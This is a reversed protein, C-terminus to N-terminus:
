CPGRDKWPSWRGGTGPEQGQTWWRSRYERGNHSVRAGDGYVASPDWAAASCGSGDGEEGGESDAGGPEEDEEQGEEGDEDRQPEPPEGAPEPEPSGRSVTLTVASGPSVISDADPSQGIVTDREVTDSDQEVLEVLLGHEALVEQATFRGLGVVSPVEVGESVYLTVTEERDAPEGAAPDSSVVTGPPHDASAEEVVEVDAFGTEHLSQRAEAEDAGVLPPVELTRPGQSLFLTVSHGEGIPAGAEPATAAVTGERVDDSYVPAYTFVLQPGLERLAQEAEGRTAGVLDPVTQDGEPLLLWGLGLLVALLVGAAAAPLLPRRRPAAPGAPGPESRAAEGQPGSPPPATTGAEPFSRLVQDLLTLYQGADRPRYRPDRQTAKAVLMDIGTPRDQVFSEPLRADGAARLDPAHPPLAGTILEFLLVGASYVDSREDVAGRGTQEPALYATAPGPADELGFGTVRVQGDEGVLVKEPRLARHVVGARHAADLGSLVSAVTTLAAHPRLRERERLVERLTRGPVYEMVLYVHGQDHGHGYVQVLNPHSLLALSQATDAFGDAAAPKGSLEARMVKLAVPCHLRLDRAAYVTGTSGAAICSEISYRQDLTAGVLPDPAPESM